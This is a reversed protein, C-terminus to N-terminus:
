SICVYFVFYQLLMAFHGHNFNLKANIVVLSSKMTFQKKCMVVIHNKESEVKLTVM